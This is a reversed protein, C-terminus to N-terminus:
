PFICKVAFNSGVEDNKSNLHCPDTWDDDVSTSYQSEFRITSLLMHQLLHFDTYIEM